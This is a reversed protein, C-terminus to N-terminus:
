FRNLPSFSPSYWVQRILLSKRSLLRRRLCLVVTWDQDNAMSVYFPGEIPHPGQKVNQLDRSRFAEDRVEFLCTVSGAPVVGAAKADACESRREATEMAASVFVGRGGEPLGSKRAEVGYGLSRSICDAFGSAPLGSVPHLKRCSNQPPCKSSAPLPRAMSIPENLFRNSVSDSLVDWKGAHKCPATFPRSNNTSTCASPPPCRKQRRKGKPLLSAARSRTCPGAHPCSRDRDPAGAHRCPM